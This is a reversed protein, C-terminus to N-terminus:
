STASDTESESFNKRIVSTQPSQLNSKSLIHLPRHTFPMEYIVNNYNSSQSRCYKEQSSEKTAETRHLYRSRNQYSEENENHQLIEPGCYIARQVTVNRDNDTNTMKSDLRMVSLLRSLKPNWCRPQKEVIDHAFLHKRIIWLVLAVTLIFFLICIIAILSWFIKWKLSISIRKMLFQDCGKRAGKHRVGKFIQQSLLNRELVDFNQAQNNVIFRRFCGSFAASYNEADYGLSFSLLSSSILTPLQEESRIEKGHGDIEVRFLKQDESIQISLRHWETDDLDSSIHVEIPQADRMKAIMHASGNMLEIKIFRKEEVIALIVTNRLATRFDLEMWQAPIDDLIDGEIESEECPIERLLEKEDHIASRGHKESQIQIATNRKALEIKQMMYMSLQFIIGGSKVHWPEMAKHCNLADFGDRCICKRDNEDIVCVGGSCVDIDGDDACTKRKDKDIVNEELLGPVRDIEHENITIQRMCGEFNATGDQKTIIASNVSDKVGGIYVIQEGSSTSIDFNNAIAICRTSKCPECFGDDDCHEVTLKVRRHKYQFRIMKWKGDNVKEEVLLENMKKSSNGSLHVQGNQLKLTFHPESVGSITLSTLLLSSPNLTRFGQTLIFIQQSFPFQLLSSLGDFCLTKLQCYRGSYGNDCECLRLGNNQKVCTGRHCRDCININSHDCHIESATSNDSCTCVFSGFINLCKGNGCINKDECEDIDNQCFKGTYGKTCLCTGTHTFHRYKDICTGGNRCKENEDCVQNDGGNCLIDNECICNVHSIVVPVIFSTKYGILELLEGNKTINQSCRTGYICQEFTLTCMDLAIRVLHVNKSILKETFFQKLLKLANEKDKPVLDQDLIAVFVRFFDVELQQLGLLQLMMNPFMEEFTSISDAISGEVAWLEVIVSFDSLLSRLATERRMRLNIPFTINTRPNSAEVLLPTNLLYEEQLLSSSLKLVCSGSINYTQSVNLLRCSYVGVQDADVPFAHLIIMDPIECLYGLNITRPVLEPENDDQDDVYIRLHIMSHVSSVDLDNVTIPVIYLSRKERDLVESTFVIGTTDNIVFIQSLDKDAIRYKFSSQKRLIDSDMMHLKMVATHIPSNELVYGVSSSPDLSPRNDNVNNVTITVLARSRIVDNEILAIQLRYDVKQEYNMTGCLYLKGPDGVCFPQETAYGIRGEEVIDLYYEEPLNEFIVFSRSSDANESLLFKYHPQLIPPAETDKREIFVKCVNAEFNTKQLFQGTAVIQVMITGTTGNWNEKVYIEGTRGNIDVLNSSTMRYLIKQYYNGNQYIAEVRGIITGKLAFASIEFNRETEAFYLESEGDQKVFIEVQLVNYYTGNRSGEPVLGPYDSSTTRPNSALVGFLYESATGYHFQSSVYLTGSTANITFPLESDSLLHYVVVANSESDVDVASFHAITTGVPSYASITYQVYRNEFEPANDNEDLVEVTVEATASLAPFGSDKATILFQYNSSEEFDVYETTLITGTTADIAFPLRDTDYVIYYTIYGNLGIDPDKAIVMGIPSHLDCNEQVSFKYRKFSFQPHNINPETFEVSIIAKMLKKNNTAISFIIKYGLVAEPFTANTFLYGNQDVMFRSDNVIAMTNYLPLHGIATYPDANLLLAFQYYPQETENSKASDTIHIYITVDNKMSPFGQDSAVGKCEVTNNVYQGLATTSFILGSSPEVMFLDNGCRLAYRIQGNLGEDMDFALIQGIETFIGSDAAISFTYFSDNFTPANDNVDEITITLPTRVEWLGDWAKVKISYESKKERDVQKALSIWGTQQDISFNDACNGELGYILTSNVDADYCIVQLILTGLRSNEAVAGHFLNSFRPANDNRDLVEIKVVVMESLQPNGHDKAIVHLHYENLEEADLSSTTFIEGSVEDIKFYKQAVSDGTMLSYSIKGNMGSDSDRATVKIILEDSDGNEAVSASYFAKEFFPRNDNIDVVNVVCNTYSIMPQIHQDIAAIWLEYQKRYEYDIRNTAYLEGSNPNLYFHHHPDGSFITFLIGRSSVNVSQAMFKTVLMDPNHETAMLEQQSRKEFVPFRMTESVYFALGVSSTLNGHDSVVATISYDQKLLQRTATIIGSQSIQFYSVDPGSLSYYLTDNEDLDLASIVYIVDNKEVSNSIFVDLQENLIIPINDNQDLVEIRVVAASSHEVFKGNDHAIVKLIWHSQSERDLVELRGICGTTSNIFFPLLEEDDLSYRIMSFERDDKDTAKLCLLTLNEEVPENEMVEVYYQPYEFIPVNDNVDMVLVTVTSITNFSRPVTLDNAQVVLEYRNQMEYNLPGTIQLKGTQPIVRFLTSNGQILSYSLTGNLGRDATIARLTGITIPYTGQMNEGVYLIIDVRGPFQATKVGINLVEILVISSQKRTNNNSLISVTLNYSSNKAANLRKNTMIIGNTPSIRFYDDENGSKIEFLVNTVTDTIQSVIHGVPVNEPIKIHYFNRLRPSEKNSALVTVTVSVVTSLRRPVGYDKAEILLHYNKQEEADIPYHVLLYGLVPNIMFLGESNSWPLIRYQLQGNHGMDPDVAHVLGVITGSTARESIFFASPSVFQPANDNVDLVIIKVTTTAKFTKEPPRQDYIVIHLHHVAMYERDLPTRLFIRGDPKIGFWSRENGIISIEFVFENVTDLDIVELQTIVEGVPADEYVKVEYNNSKFKPANDNKDIIYLFIQCGVSAGGIRHAIAEFQYLSEKEFDFPATTSIIGTNSDISIAAPNGQLTYRTLNNDDSMLIDVFTGSPSNEPVMLDIRNQLCFLANNDVQAVIILVTVLKSVENVKNTVRIDLYTESIRMENRTRIVGIEKDIEFNDSESLMEFKIAKGSGIKGVTSGVPVGEKITFEYYSHLNDISSEEGTVLLEIAITKTFGESLLTIEMSVLHDDPKQNIQLQGTQRDIDAWQVSNVHKENKFSTTFYEVKAGTKAIVTGFVTGLQIDRDLQYRKKFEVPAELRPNISILIYHLETTRRLKDDEFRSNTNRDYVLVSFYKPDGSFSSVIFGSDNIESVIESSEMVKYGITGNLGADRDLCNWPVFSSESGVLVAKTGFCEPSNDNEDDVQVTIVMSKLGDSEAVVLRYFDVQERDLVDICILNQQQFLFAKGAPIQRLLKLDRGLTEIKGCIEGVSNNEQIHITITDMDSNRNRKDVIMVGFTVSNFVSITEAKIILEIREGIYEDLNKMLFISGDTSDIWFLGLNSQISSAHGYSLSYLVEQDCAVAHIRTIMQGVLSNDIKIDNNPYSTFNPTCDKEADSHIFVFTANSLTPIGRDTAIVTINYVHGPVVSGDRTIDGTSENIKFPMWKQQLRYRVEGNLASDLDQAMVRGVFNDGANPSIYFHYFEKEWYPVNDNSDKVEVVVTCNAKLLGGDTIIVTLNHFQALEFDLVLLTRIIGTHPDISFMRKTDYIMEYLLTANPDSDDDIGNFLGVIAGPINNEFIIFKNKNPCQPANDNIDEIYLQLLFEHKNPVSNSNKYSNFAAVSISLYNMIEHDIKSAVFVEGSPLIQVPHNETVGYTQFEFRQTINKPALTTIITGLLINEPISLAIVPPFSYPKEDEKIEVVVRITSHRSQEGGDTATVHFQLQNFSNPFKVLQVIGTESDISFFSSNISFTIHGNRGEDPDHCRLRFLEAGIGIRQSDIVFHATGDLEFIPSNDNQDLINLTGQHMATSWEGDAYITFGIRPEVERDFSRRARIEGTFENILLDTTNIRYRIGSLPSHVSFSALIKEPSSNEIVEISWNNSTSFKPVQFMSDLLWINITANNRSLRGGNDKAGVIIEIKPGFNLLDAHTALYVRGTRHDLELSSPVSYYFLYSIQAFKPSDNDFAELQVLYTGSPNGRVIYGHYEVQAFYPDNDNVDLVNIILLVSSSRSPKGHDTATVIIKHQKKTERDLKTRLLIEGSSEKVMFIQKKHPDEINYSIASNNEHDEDTACVKFIVTLPPTDELVEVEYFPASFQPEHDNVDIITIQITCISFKNSPTTKRVSIELEYNWKTHNPWVKSLTVIGTNEGVLFLGDNGSNEIISFHLDEEASTRVAAVFSGLPSTEFIDVKMFKEELVPATDNLKTVFVKLDRELSRPPVGDDTACFKLLFQKIPKDMLRNQRLIGYNKGSELRFYNENNGNIISIRVNQGDDRDNATIVAITSGVATESSIYAVESGTPYTRFNIEPDHLNTNTLHIYVLTHGILKPEGQDQAEVTLVCIGSCDQLCGDELCNLATHQITIAGTSRDIQFYESPNTTLHYSILGNDGVDVDTAEVWLLTANSLVSGNLQVDYRSQRFIPPNDNVDLVNVYVICYGSRPPSGGDYASINLVFLDKTERDLKTQLELLLVDEGSTNSSRVLTFFEKENELEYNVITGNEALDPDNAPQLRIRSGIVASEVISVSMHKSPFTPSNDNVDLVNIRVAVITTPEATLILIITGNPAITERNLPASTRVEGTQIDVSAFQNHGNLRYNLNPELPIKGILTGEAIDEPIEFDFHQESFLRIPIVLSYLLSIQLVCRM